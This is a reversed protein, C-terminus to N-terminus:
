IIGSTGLSSQDAGSEYVLIDKMIEHYNKWLNKTKGHAEDLAKMTPLGYVMGSLVTDRDKIMKEWKVLQQYAFPLLGIYLPEYKKPDKKYDYGAEKGITKTIFTQKDKMSFVMSAPHYMLHLGWMLCSSKYKGKSTDKSHLEEFEPIVLVEPFTSWFNKTKWDFNAERIGGELRKVSIM